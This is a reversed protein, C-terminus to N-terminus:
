SAPSSAAGSAPAPAASSGPRPTAPGEAGRVARMAAERMFEPKADLHAYTSLMEPSRHGILEQVARSPVGNALAETAFTHRYSYAVIDRAIPDRKRNKKRVLRNNVAKRTWSNGDANRFLAGTPHEAALRRSLELLTPTMYITRMQGTANFDKGKVQWTGGALDVDAARVKMIEGPRCGSEQLAVLFDRFPDGEPFMALIAAREEPSLIRTRRRARPKKLGTIPNARILHQEVAWNLCRKLACIAGRISSVGWPPKRDADLWARVLERNISAVRIRPHHDMFDQLYGLYWVRTDEQIQGKIGDKFRHAVEAFLIDQRPADPAAEAPQNLRRLLEQWARAIEAPPSWGRKGKRPAEDAPHTGLKHQKGDIEVYWACTQKRFWPGQM